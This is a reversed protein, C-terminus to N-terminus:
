IDVILLSKSTDKKKGVADEHIVEVVPRHVGRPRLPGSHHVTVLNGVDEPVREPEVGGDGVGLLLAAQGPVHHGVPCVKGLRPLFLLLLLFLILFLM